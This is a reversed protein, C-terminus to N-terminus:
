DSVYREDIEIEHKQCFLRYEQQFSLKAHHQEQNRISTDVSDHISHSVSLAGYGAQWSFTSRCGIAKKAWKSTETKLQEVLKAVTITRSLGVPLQLHDVHRGVSASVCEADKVHYSLMRFMKECFESHQFFTAAGQHIMDRAALDSRAIAADCITEKALHGSRQGEFPRM